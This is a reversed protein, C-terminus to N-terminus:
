LYLSEPLSEFFRSMSILRLFFGKNYVSVGDLKSKRTVFTLSFINQAFFGNQQLEFQHLAIFRKTYLLLTPLLYVGWTQM